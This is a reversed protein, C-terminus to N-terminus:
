DVRNFQPDINAITLTSLHIWISIWLLLLHESVKYIYSMFIHDLKFPRVAEVMAYHCQKCAEGDGLIETLEILNPTEM